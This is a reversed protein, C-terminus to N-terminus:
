WSERILRQEFHYVRVNHVVMDQLLALLAAVAKGELFTVEEDIQRAEPDAYQSLKGPRLVPMVGHIIHSRVRYFHEFWSPHAPPSGIVMDLREDLERRIRGKKSKLLGELAQALVLLNEPDGKRRTCIRLLGFFAKQTPERAVAIDYAMDHHLWEWADRFPTWRLAPWGEEIADFLADDLIESDLIQPRKDPHDPYKYPNLNCSGPTAINMALFVQQLFGEVVGFPTEEAVGASRPTIRLRIFPDPPERASEIIPYMENELVPTGIRRVENEEDKLITERLHKIMGSSDVAIEYWQEPARDVLFPLPRGGAFFEQVEEWVRLTRRLFDTDYNSENTRGISVLLDVM